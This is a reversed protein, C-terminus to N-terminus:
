TTQVILVDCPAKHSVSNPVSGLVRRAGKMGRSGLVILEAKEQQAVSLIADAADGRPGHQQIEVEGGQAIDAARDLVADVKFHPSISWEAAEAPAPNGGVRAPAPEYASVVHLTAGTMRALEIARELALDATPSGDTGVVISKYM